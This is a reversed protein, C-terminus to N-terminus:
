AIFLLISLHMANMGASDNVNMLMASMKFDYNHRTHGDACVREKRKAVKYTIKQVESVRCLNGRSGKTMKVSLGMPNNIVPDLQPWSQCYLPIPIPLTNQPTTRQKRMPDPTSFPCFYLLFFFPSSSPTLPSVHAKM